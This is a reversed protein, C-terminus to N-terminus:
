FGKRVLLEVEEELSLKSLITDEHSKVALFATALRHGLTAMLLRDARLLDLSALLTTPLPPADAQAEPLPLEAARRHGDLGAAIVAAIALYPNCCADLATLEFSTCESGTAGRCLRLPAEKSEVGWCSSHTWGGSRGFRRFSCTTPATIALLAPLHELVGTMFSRGAHSVGTQHSEDPFMNKGARALSMRLHVGNRDTSAKAQPVFVASLGHNKACAAITERCVIVRDALTVPDQHSELVVAMQGGMSEGHVQEVFLSQRRFWDCLQELFGSNDDLTRPHSWNLSDATAGDRRLLFQVECGAVVDFGAEDRASKAVRWLLGRACLPSLSGDPECLYGFTQAHSRNYPLVQLSRLDPRLTLRGVATLGSNPAVTDASLHMGMMGEVMGVGRLLEEPKRSLSELAMAKARLQGSSDVVCVRLFQVGAAALATLVAGAVEPLSPDPTPLKTFAHESTESVRPTKAPPGQAGSPPSRTASLERMIQECSAMRSFGRMGALGQKHEIDSNAACGDEAVTVLYGLDAADRVASEVCQNTLQGCVVLQRVGLNTLVYHLNTSQFVSCSTKPIMIDDPGPMISPLIEADPSGRAVFLPGSLKYDLSADRGDATLAEIYTYIVEADHARAAKLMPAINAVMIDVRDFFYQMKSRPIGARCGADPISCYRQVDVVLIATQDAKVPLERTSGPPVRKVHGFAYAM